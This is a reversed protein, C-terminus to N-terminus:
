VIQPRDYHSFMGNVLLQMLLMPFLSLTSKWFRTQYLSHNPFNFKLDGLLFPTAEKSM